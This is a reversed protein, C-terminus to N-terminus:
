KLRAKDILSKLQQLAGITSETPLDELSTGMSKSWTGKSGKTIVVSPKPQVVANPYGYKKNFQEGFDAAEEFKKWSQENLMRENMPGIGAQGSPVADGVRLKSFDDHIKWKNDLEIKARKTTNGMMRDLFVRRDMPGDKLGYPDKAILGKGPVTKMSKSLAGIIGGVPGTVMPNIAGLIQDEPNDLGLFRAGAKLMRVPTSEVVSDEEQLRKMSSPKPIVPM